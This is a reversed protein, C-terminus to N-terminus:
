EIVPRLRCSITWSMWLSRSNPPSIFPRTFLHFSLFYFARGVEGMCSARKQSKEIRMSTKAKPTTKKRFGTEDAILRTIVKTAKAASKTVSSAKKM